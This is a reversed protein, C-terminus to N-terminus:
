CAGAGSRSDCALSPRVSAKTEGGPAFASAFGNSLCISTSPNLDQRMSEYRRAEDRQQTPIQKAMLEYPLRARADPRRINRPWNQMRRSARESARHGHYIGVPRWYM